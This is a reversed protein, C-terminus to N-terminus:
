GKMLDLSSFVKAKRKGVMDMLEDIRSIPYRDPITDKNVARYDFCM